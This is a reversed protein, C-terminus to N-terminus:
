IEVRLHPNNNLSPMPLIPMQWFRLRQWRGADVLQQAMAIRLAVEVHNTQMHDFMLLRRVTRMYQEELIFQELTKIKNKM